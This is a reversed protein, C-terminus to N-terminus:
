YCFVFFDKNGFFFLKTPDVGPKRMQTKHRRKLAHICLMRGAPWIHGAFAKLKARKACMKTNKAEKRSLHVRQIPLFLVNQGKPIVWFIKKARWSIQTSCGQKLTKLLKKKISCLFTNKATGQFLCFLRTSSTKRRKAKIFLKKLRRSLLENHLM